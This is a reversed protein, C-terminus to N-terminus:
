DEPVECAELVPIIDSWIKAGQKYFEIHCDTYDLLGNRLEAAKAREFVQFEKMVQTSFMNSLDNSRAVEEQLEKIKQELRELKEQKAQVMDVGRVEKVKDALFGTINVGGSGELRRGPHLTKEREAVTHQLYNSLEEFDVQKQDRVRLTGKASQCYSLYEHVKNLFNLDEQECMDKIAGAYKKSTEAFQGLESAIGTELISLGDISTSFMNYDQALDYQRKSIRSYLREVTGLNDALKDVNEKMEVFREEPKQVKTFANLFTDSLTEIVSGSSQDRIAQLQKDHKFNVSELFVRTSQSQQYLPHRAIRDLFWQLSQRRREVFESGFRDGKLYEIRHKEPLPPVISASFEYTLATYLWVFDQYRRRVRCPSRSSFTPISTHTTILYSIYTGSSSESEKQPESVTVTMPQAVFVSDNSSEGRDKYNYEDPARKANYTNEDYDGTLDNNRDYGNGNNVVSPKQAQFSAFPDSDQETRSSELDTASQWHVSGYEEDGNM